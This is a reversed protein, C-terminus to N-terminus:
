KIKILYNGQVEGNEYSGYRSYTMMKNPSFFYEIEDAHDNAVILDLKGLDKDTLKDTRGGFRSFLAIRIQEYECVIVHADIMFNMKLGSFELSGSKEIKYFNTEPFSKGLVTVGEESLEKTYYVSGIPCVHLLTSTIIQVDVGLSSEPLILRDIRNANARSLARELRNTNFVYNVSNLVVVTEDEITFVTASLTNSGSIYM